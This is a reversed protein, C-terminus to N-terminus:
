CVCQVNHGARDVHVDLADLAKTTRLAPKNGLKSLTCTYVCLKHRVHHIAM